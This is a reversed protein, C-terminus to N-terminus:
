TANISAPTMSGDGPGHSLASTRGEEAEVGPIAPPM